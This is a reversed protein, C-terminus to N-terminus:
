GGSSSHLAFSAGQPDVCMVIKDGGPVEMPGMVVQGGLEKVQEASTEVDDVKIYYNWMPPGPMEATRDFMGGLPAGNRGYLRYINGEGMDMDDMIEWGFLGAYFEFGGRYDTTMLEHWSFKGVGPPVDAAPEDSNSGYVALSAGQPDVIVAFQGVGPIDTVPHRLSGGLEEVRAAAAAVDEVVVYALWSPTAGAEVGDPPLDMLGGLPEGGNAFMTYPQEGGEFPQTSWGILKSYFGIAGDQDTTMLDYWAFRGRDAANSM